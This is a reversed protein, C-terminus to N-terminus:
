KIMITEDPLLLRFRHNAFNGFNEGSTWTNNGNLYTIVHKGEANVKCALTGNTVFSNPGAEVVEYLVGPQLDKGLIYSPQTPQSLIPIPMHKGTSSPSTSQKYDNPVVKYFRSCPSGAALNILTAIEKAYDEDMPFLVFKENPYDGGYNDTEVIRSM